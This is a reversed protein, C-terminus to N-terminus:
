GDAGAAAGDPDAAPGLGAGVHRGHGDEAPRDDEGLLDGLQGGGAVDVEHVEAVVQDTVPLLGADVARFMEQELIVLDSIAQNLPDVTTGPNLAGKSRM